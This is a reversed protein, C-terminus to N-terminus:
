EKPPYIISLNVVNLALDVKPKAIIANNDKPEDVTKEASSSL